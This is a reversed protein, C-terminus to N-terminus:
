FIPLPFFSFIFGAVTAPKLNFYEEILGSACSSGFLGLEMVPKINFLYYKDSM